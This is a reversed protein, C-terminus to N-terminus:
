FHCSHFSTEITALMWLIARNHKLDSSAFVVCLVILETACLRTRPVIPRDM